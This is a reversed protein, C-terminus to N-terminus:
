GWHFSPLGPRADDPAGYRILVLSLLAAGIHVPEVTELALPKRSVTAVNQEDHRLTWQADSRWRKAGPNLSYGFDRGSIGYRRGGSRGVAVKRREKDVVLPCVFGGMTAARIRWPTGDELRVAVGNGFYIRLWGLHGLRAITEGEVRLENVPFRRWGIRRLEARGLLTHDSAVPTVDM